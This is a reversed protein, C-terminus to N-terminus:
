RAGRQIYTLSFRSRDATPEYSVEGQLEIEGREALPELAKTLTEIKAAYGRLTIAHGKFKVEQLWDFPPIAAALARLTESRLESVRPGRTAAITRNILDQVSIQEAYDRKEDALRERWSGRSEILSIWDVVIFCMIGSVVAAWFALRQRDFVRNIRVPPCVPGLALHSISFGLRNIESIAPDVRSKPSFWIDVDVKSADIAPNMTRAVYLESIAYPTWRDMEFKLLQDLTASAASPVAIRRNLVIAPAPYFVVDSRRAVSILDAPPISGYSVSKAIGARGVGKTVEYGSGTDKIDIRPTQVRALLLPAMGGLEGLWWIVGRRLGSFISVVKEGISLAERV